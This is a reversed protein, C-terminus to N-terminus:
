TEHGLSEGPGGPCHFLYRPWSSQEFKHLIEYRCHVYIERLLFFFIESLKLWSSQPIELRCNFQELVKVCVSSM